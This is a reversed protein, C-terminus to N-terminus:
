ALELGAAAKKGGSWGGRWVGAAWDGARAWAAGTDMALAVAALPVATREYTWAARFYGWVVSPSLVGHEKALAGLAASDTLLQIILPLHQM